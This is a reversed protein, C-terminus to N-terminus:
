KSTRFVTQRLFFILGLGTAVYILAFSWTFFQLLVGSLATAICWWVTMDVIVKLREARNDDRGPSTSRAAFLRPVYVLSVVALPVFVGLMLRAPLAFVKQGIAYGIVLYSFCWGLAIGVFWHSKKNNDFIM